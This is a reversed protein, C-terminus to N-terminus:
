KFGLSVQSVREPTSVWSWSFALRSAHQVESYAGGVEHRDGDLTEFAVRFRGGVRLDVEAVLVPGGDPGFWRRLAQPETWARWVLAPPANFHRVLRLVPRDPPCEIQSSLTTNM